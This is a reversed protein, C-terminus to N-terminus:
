DMNVFMISGINCEVQVTQILYVSFTYIGEFSHGNVYSPLDFLKGIKNEHLSCNYCDTVKDCVSTIRTVKLPVALACNAVYQEGVM